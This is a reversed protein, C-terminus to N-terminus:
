GTQISLVRKLAWFDFVEQRRDQRKMKEGSRLQSRRAPPLSAFGGFFAARGPPFLGGRARAARRPPPAPGATRGPEESRAKSTSGAAFNATVSRGRRGPARHPVDWGGNVTVAM